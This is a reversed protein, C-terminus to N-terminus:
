SSDYFYNMLTSAFIDNILTSKGSGSVGTVCVFRRLPFVATVNLLNNETAGIISISDKASIEEKAINNSMEQPFDTEEIIKAIKKVIQGRLMPDIKQSKEILSQIEPLKGTSQLFLILTPSLKM